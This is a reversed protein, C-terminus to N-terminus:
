SGSGKEMYWKILKFGEPSDWEALGILRGLEKGDPGILITTPLASVGVARSFKLREDIFNQPLDVKLKKLFRDTQNFGGRDQSILVVQANESDL